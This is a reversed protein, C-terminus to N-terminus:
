KNKEWLNNIFIWAINNSDIWICGEKANNIPRKTKRWSGFRLIKNLNHRSTNYDKEVEKKDEKYLLIRESLEVVQKETLKAMSHNEGIMNSPKQIERKVSKWVKGNLIDSLHSNTIEYEKIILKRDEKNKIIRNCINIIDNETLKSMGHQEGKVVVKKMIPRNVHKWSDGVIIERFAAKEINYDKMVDKRSEGNIIVRNAIDIINKNTLKSNTNDEGFLIPSKTGGKATNYFPSLEDILQKEKDLMTYEEGQYLIEQEFSEWGKEKIDIKMKSNPALKHENFRRDPDVSIGIYFRGNKICTIKYVYRIRNDM